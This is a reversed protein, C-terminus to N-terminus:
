RVLVHGQLFRLLLLARVLVPSIPDHVLSVSSGAAAAFGPEADGLLARVPQHDSPRVAVDIRLDDRRRAVLHEGARRRELGLHALVHLVTAVLRRGRDDALADGGLGLARADVRDGEVTGSELIVAAHLRQGFRGAFAPELELAPCVLDFMAFGAPRCCCFRCCCSSRPSPNRSFIIEILRTVLTTLPPRIRPQAASVTTPSPSPRTPMPLPLALSTGTATCFAISCARRLIILTRNFLPDSWWATMPRCPAVRTNMFGASSPVPMMAPPGIRATNSTTPTVLM